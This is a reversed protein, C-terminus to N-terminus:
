HGKEAIFAQLLRSFPAPAEMTLMHAAEPITVLRAGAIREQLQSAHQLVDPIDLAGALVLVPAQITHLLSAAPQARKRLSVGEPEPVRFADLQMTEVQARVRGDVQDPTRYPGDVWWRLNLATAAQLDGVALLREEEEGFAALEGSTELGAVLPSVIVLGRVRKPYGLAFDIAVSGGFSIGAIWATELELADLLAVLDDEYAFLGPPLPSRGYGKLDPAILLLDDPPQALQAAWMRSDAVGAHLLLVPTGKGALQYYLPVGQTQVYGNRVSQESM